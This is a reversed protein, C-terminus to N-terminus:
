EGSSDEGMESDEVAGDDTQSEDSMADDSSSDDSMSEDAPAEDTGMESDEVMGDDAQALQFAKEPAAQAHSPITVPAFGLVFAAGFTLASLVKLM